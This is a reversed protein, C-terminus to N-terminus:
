GVQAQYRTDPGSGGQGCDAGSVWAWRAGTGDTLGLVLAPTGEFAAYDVLNFTIPGRGHALAIAELCATLADRDALRALGAAQPGDGPERAAGLTGPSSPDPPSAADTGTREEVNGQLRNAVAGPLTVAAYDTGTAILQRAAPPAFQPAVAPAPAGAVTDESATDSLGLRSLGFGAFAVAAAAVAVLGALRSRRRRAARASRDRGDHARNDSGPVVSLRRETQEGLPTQETFQTPIGPQGLPGADALAATLRDTIETPMPETTAAWGALDEQVSDFALTLAAYAAAWEPDAEILRAVAAEEPTDTLVGELYDALLDLDVESSQGATM